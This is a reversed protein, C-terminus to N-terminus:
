RPRILDAPNTSVTAHTSVCYHGARQLGMSQRGGSEERWPVKWALISSHTAM